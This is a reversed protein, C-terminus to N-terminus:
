VGLHSPLCGWGIWIPTEETSPWPAQLVEYYTCCPNRLPFNIIHSRHFCKETITILCDFFTMWILVLGRNWICPKGQCSNITIHSNYSKWEFRRLVWYHESDPKNTFLLYSFMVLYLFSMNRKKKEENNGMCM